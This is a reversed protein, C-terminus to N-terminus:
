ANFKKRIVLGFATLATGLGSLAIGATAGTEPLESIEGKKYCVTATDAGEFDGDKRVEAKNVICKEFNDREFESDKVKVTLHFTKKDGFDFNDWEETLDGEILKLEDPLFDKMKMDDVEVEGTNKITIVFVFEEGKEVNIKDEADDDDEDKERVEKTIRFSKNVICKEGGGYVAECDEAYVKNNTVAVLLGAATVSIAILKLNLKKFM